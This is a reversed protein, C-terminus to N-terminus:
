QEAATYQVRDDMILTGGDESLTLIERSVDSGSANQGLEVRALINRVMACVCPNDSNGGSYLKEMQTDRFSREDIYLYGTAAMNETVFVAEGSVTIKQGRSFCDNGFKRLGPGLIEEIWGNRRACFCAGQLERVNRSLTVKRATTEVFCQVGISRVAPDDIVIEDVNKLCCKQLCDGLLVVSNNEIYPTGELVRERSCIIKDWYLKQLGTYAFCSTGLLEVTKPLRVSTLSKCYEFASKDIVRTGGFYVRELDKCHCFAWEGIHALNKSLRAYKLSYCCFFAHDGIEIVSDPLYIECIEKNGFFARTEIKVVPRGNISRPIKVTKDSGHWGTIACGPIGAGNYPGNHVFLIDENSDRRNSIYASLWFDVGHYRDAGEFEFGAADAEACTMDAGEYLTFYDPVDMDPKAPVPRVVGYHVPPPSVSGNSGRKGQLSDNYEKLMDFIDRDNERSKKVVAALLKIMLAGTILNGLRM